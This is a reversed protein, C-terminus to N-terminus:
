GARETATDAALLRETFDTQEQLETMRARLAEIEEELEKVRPVAALDGRSELGRTREVMWVAFGATGASGIIAAILILLQVGTFM